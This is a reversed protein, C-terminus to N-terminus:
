GRTSASMVEVLIIPGLIERAEGSAAPGCDVLADPQYATM